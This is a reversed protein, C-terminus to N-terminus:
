RFIKQYRASTIRSHEDLALYGTNGDGVGTDTIGVATCTDLDSAYRRSFGPKLWQYDDVPYGSTVKGIQVLIIDFGNVDKLVSCCRGDITRSSAVTDDLNSRFFARLVAGDM